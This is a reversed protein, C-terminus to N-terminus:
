GHEGKQDGSSVNMIDDDRKQQPARTHRKGPRGGKLARKKVEASM